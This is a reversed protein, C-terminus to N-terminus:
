SINLYVSISSVIMTITSKSILHIIIMSIAQMMLKGVLIFFFLNIRDLLKFFSRNIVWWQWRSSSWWNRRNTGFFERSIRFYFFYEMSKGALRRDWKEGESRSQDTSRPIEQDGPKNNSDM